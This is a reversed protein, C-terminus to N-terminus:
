LEDHKFPWLVIEDGAQMTGGAANFGLDPNEVSYVVKRKADYKFLENAAPKDACRWAIIRNGAAVGNEANLCWENGMKFRIRSDKTFELAEHAAAQCDWLVVGAGAKVEGQVNFHFDPKAKVQIYGNPNVIFLENASSTSRCPWLVIKTGHQIAGGEVNLCMNPHKKVGIRGDNRIEFEEQATRKGSHECPWLSLPAGENAGGAVNLCMNPDAQSKILGDEVKFLEHNQPGCPWLIVPAGEPEALGGKVNLRLEPNKVLNVLGSEQDHSFLSHSAINAIGASGGVLAGLIAITIAM